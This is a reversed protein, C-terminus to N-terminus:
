QEDNMFFHSDAGHHHHGLGVFHQAEEQASLASLISSVDTPQPVADNFDLHQHHVDNSSTAPVLRRRKAEPEQMEDMM